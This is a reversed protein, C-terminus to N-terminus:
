NDEPVLLIAKLSVEFEDLSGGNCIIFLQSLSPPDREMDSRSIKLIEYHLRVAQLALYHGKDTTSFLGKLRYIDIPTSTGPIEHEWLLHQIWRELSEFDSAIKNMSLVMNQLRTTHRTTTHSMPHISQLMFQHDGNKMDFARIDLIQSLDIISNLCTWQQAHTNIRRLREMIHSLVSADILDIKNVLIRDAMAIQREFVEACTEDTQNQEFDNASV